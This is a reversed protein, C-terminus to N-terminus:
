ATWQGALGHEIDSLGGQMMGVRTIRDACAPHLSELRPPRPSFPAPVFRRAGEALIM